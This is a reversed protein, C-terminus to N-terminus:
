QLCTGFTNKLLIIPRYSPWQLRRNQNTKTLKVKVPYMAMTEKLFHRTVLEGELRESLNEGDFEITFDLETM